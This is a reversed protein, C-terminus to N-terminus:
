SQDWPVQQQAIFAMLLHAGRIMRPLLGRDETNVERAHNARVICHEASTSPVDVIM